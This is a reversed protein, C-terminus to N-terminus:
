KLGRGSARGQKLWEPLSLSDSEPGADHRMEMREGRLERRISGEFWNSGDKMAAAFEARTNTRDANKGGTLPRGLWWTNPDRGKPRKLSKSTTNSRFVNFGSMTSERNVVGLWGLWRRVRLM